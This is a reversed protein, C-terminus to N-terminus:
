KPNKFNRKDSVLSALNTCSIDEILSKSFKNIFITKVINEEDFNLQESLCGNRKNSKSNAAVVCKQGSSIQSDSLLLNNLNFDIENMRIIIVVLVFVFIENSDMVLRDWIRYYHRENIM